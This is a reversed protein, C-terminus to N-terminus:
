DADEAAGEFSATLVEATRPKLRTLARAIRTLRAVDPDALGAVADNLDARASPEALTLSAVRGCERAWRSLMDFSAENVGTENASITTQRVGLREALQAQTLGAATRIESLRRGLSVKDMGARYDLAPTTARYGNNTTGTLM